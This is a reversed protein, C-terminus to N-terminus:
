INEFLNNKNFNIIETNGDYILKSKSLMNDDDISDKIAKAFLVNSNYIETNTANVCFMIAEEYESIIMGTYFGKLSYKEVFKDANCWICVCLKERLLYVLESNIVFRNYGLLGDETGHGLMIIRDHEKILNKLGCKSPNWDVVTWDKDIYIDELFGTTIDFPHIVLTKM